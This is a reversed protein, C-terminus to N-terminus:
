IQKCAIRIPTINQVDVNVENEVDDLGFTNGNQSCPMNFTVCKELSDIVFTAWFQRAEASSIIEVANKKTQMLYDINNNHRRVALYPSYSFIYKLLSYIISVDRICVGLVYAMRNKEFDEILDPCNTKEARVWCNDKKGYGKWKM